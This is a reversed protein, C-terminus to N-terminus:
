QHSQKRYRFIISVVLRYKAKAQAPNIGLSKKLCAISLEFDELFVMCWARKNLCGVILKEEAASKIM